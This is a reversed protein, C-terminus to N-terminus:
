RLGVTFTKSSHASGSLTKEKLINMRMVIGPRPAM